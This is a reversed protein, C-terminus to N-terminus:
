EFLEKVLKKRRFVKVIEKIMHVFKEDEPEEERIEELVEWQRQLPPISEAKYPSEGAANVKQVTKKLTKPIEKIENVYEWTYALGAIMPNDYGALMSIPTNKYIIVPKGATYAMATEAVSGGDPVRGNMNFVLVDCREIVQYKRVLQMVPKAITLATIPNDLMQMVRGVEIGDRQPLYTNYGAGELIDSISKMAWKDEPSFM